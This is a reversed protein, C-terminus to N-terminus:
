PALGKKIMRIDHRILDLHTPVPGDATSLSDVYLPTELRAGTAAAVQEMASPNVTSECFVAPVQHEQVFHIADKIQHPTGEADSNVPWLFAEQLGADKALYSFAGECTVLAPTAQPDKFAQTLEEMVADLERKYDEGNARFDAAHAPVLTSLAEVINDVYTKAALPSMWAHPNPKGAYDGSRIDVPEVGESLVAHPAPVSLLFREFWRELGLGNDLILDAEQARVLDSPTPEYGHIEAGVKTLSEVRVHEGAVQRVMDALVTFTTLVLPRPDGSTQPSAATGAAGCGPVALLATLLALVAWWNKPM